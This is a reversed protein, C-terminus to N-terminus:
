EKEEVAADIASDLEQPTAQWDETVLGPIPWFTAPSKQNRLWRYREADKRMRQVEPSQLVAQEIARAFALAGGYESLRAGSGIWQIQEDTLVEETAMPPEGTAKAIARLLRAAADEKLGSLGATDGDLYDAVELLLARDSETLSTHNHEM